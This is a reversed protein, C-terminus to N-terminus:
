KQRHDQENRDTVHARQHAWAPLSRQGLGRDLQLGEDAGPRAAPASPSRRSRQALPPLAPRAARKMGQFITLM